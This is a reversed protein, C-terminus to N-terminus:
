AAPLSAEVTIKGMTSAGLRGFEPQYELEIDLEAVVAELATLAAGPEGRLATFELLEDGDTQLIDFVHVIKFGRLSKKKGDKEKASDTEEDDKAKYVLPALIGIGKEGKKVNRGLDRWAGYGAVRTAEPNQTLILMV